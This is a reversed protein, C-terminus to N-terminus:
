ASTSGDRSVHPEAPVMGHSHPGFAALGTCVNRSCECRVAVANVGGLAVYLTRGDFRLQRCDIKREPVAHRGADRDSNGPHRSAGADANGGAVNCVRTLSTLRAGHTPGVIRATVRGAAVDIRGVARRGCHRAGHRARRTPRLTPFRQSQGREGVNSTRWRAMQHFSPPSRRLPPILDFRVATEAETVALADNARPHVVAVRRGDAGARAVAPAGAMFVSRARCYAPPASRGEASGFANLQAVANAKLSPSLGADAAALSSTTVASPNVARPEDRVVAVGQM